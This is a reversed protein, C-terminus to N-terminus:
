PQRRRRRRRRAVRGTASRGSASPRRQVPSVEFASRLLGRHHRSHLRRVHLARARPRERRGSGVRHPARRRCTAARLGSEARGPRDRSGALFPPDCVRLHARRGWGTQPAVDGRALGSLEVIATRERPSDLRHALRDRAPEGFGVELLRAVLLLDAATAPRLSLAPVDAGSLDGSLVLAHESHDLVAGRRLALRRGAGSARAVILLPDRVGRERCLSVAADLLATGIGRGRADPAVMGALEPSSELGYIGLFGLLRDGEWWLLDNVRDGSRRRLTGWELKLRGGDAEIVRRELDAIARLAGSFLGRALKLM